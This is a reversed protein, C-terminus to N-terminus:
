FLNPNFKLHNSNNNLKFKLSFEHSNYKTAFTNINGYNYNLTFKKFNYGLSTGIKHHSYDVGVKLNRYKTVLSLNTSITKQQLIFNISPTFNIDKNSFPSFKYGFGLNYFAYKANINNATLSTFFHDTFVLGGINLNVNLIKDLKNNNSVANFEISSGLAYNWKNNIKKYYAYSLGINNFNFKGIEFRGNNVYIGIGGHLKETKQNYDIYLANYGYFHSFRLNMEKNNQLGTLAPNNILPASFKLHSYNQSFCFSNLLIITSILVFNKM